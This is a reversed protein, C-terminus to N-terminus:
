CNIKCSSWSTSWAAGHWALNLRKLLLDSLQELWQGGEGGPRGEVPLVELEARTTEVQSGSEPPLPDRKVGRERLRLGEGVGQHLSPTSVQLVFLCRTHPAVFLLHEVDVVESQQGNM